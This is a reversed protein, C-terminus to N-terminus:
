TYSDTYANLLLHRFMYTCTQVCTEIYKFRQIEPRERMETQETHRERQQCHPMGLLWTSLSAVLCRGTTTCTRDTWQFSSHVSNLAITSFSTRWDGSPLPVCVVYYLLLELGDRVVLPIPFCYRELMKWSILWSLSGSTM